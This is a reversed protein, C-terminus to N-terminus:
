KKELASNGIESMGLRRNGIESLDKDNLIAIKLEKRSDNSEKIPNGSKEQSYDWKKRQM